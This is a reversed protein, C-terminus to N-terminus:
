VVLVLFYHSFRDNKDLKQAMFIQAKWKWVFIGTFGGGLRGFERNGEGCFAVLYEDLQQNWGM